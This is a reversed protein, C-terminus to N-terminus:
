ARPTALPLVAVAEAECLLEPRCLPAQVLACPFGDFGRDRCMSRLVDAPEPSAVYAIGSVVHEFGAGHGALLSEIYHLMRGVQRAVDGVHVTRGEEDISATGSVHLTVRNAEVVRLGRSFDAGYSWAENLSPTSMPTRQLPRTSQLAWLTMAFDHEAPFPGGQVGTSAPRPAIGRQHYFERRAENLADYDRDINRLHIWTRVVDRFDMGGQALLREAAGFMSLAEAVADDGTGHVNASYLSTQDALRVLRAGSRRCGECPCSSTGPVDRVSWAERRRPIVVSAALEFSTGPTSPAQEIFAPRPADDAAGLGELIRRRAGLVGPLDRRVDRLFLTEAALHRFSAQEGGLLGALERYVAEAQRAADGARGTPRCLITVDTAEPGVFRSLVTSCASSHGM